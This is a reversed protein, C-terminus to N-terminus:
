CNSLFVSKSRHSHKKKNNFTKRYFQNHVPSVCIPLLLIGLRAKVETVRLRSNFRKRIHVKRHLDFFLELHLARAESETRLHSVHKTLSIRLFFAHIEMSNHIDNMELLTIEKM